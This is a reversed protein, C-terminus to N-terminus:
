VGPRRREPSRDPSCMIGLTALPHNSNQAHCLLCAAINTHSALRLAGITFHRLEAMPWPANRSAGEERVDIM